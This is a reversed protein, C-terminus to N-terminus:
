LRWNNKWSWIWRSSRTIIHSSRAARIEPTYATFVGDNHTRRYDHFVQQIEDSITIGNEECAKEVIRIGGAPMIARKLPEDTQLGVIKELQKDIYGASHSDITAVTKSDIALVGGNDKEQKYLDIVKNWLKKTRDTASTLFSGDGEYPTYNTQIFSRVDIEEEWDGSNFNKWEEFKM